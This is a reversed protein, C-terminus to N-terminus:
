LLPRQILVSCDYTKDLTISASKVWGKFTLGERTIGVQAVKGPLIAIGTYPCNISYEDADYLQPWLEQQGREYLDSLATLYKTIIPEAIRDGAGIFVEASVASSNQQAPIDDFVLATKGINGDSCFRFRYSQSEYTVDCIGIGENAKVDGNAAIVLEGLINGYWQVGILKEFPKSIKGTGDTFTLTDTKTASNIGEYFWTVAAGSTHRFNILEKGVFPNASVNIIKTDGETQEEVTLIPVIPAANEPAILIRNYNEHSVFKRPRDFINRDTSLDYDHSYDSLDNPSCITSYIVTLEGNPLSQIAAKKEAALETIIDIPYRKEAVFKSIHWDTIQWNLAIGVNDCLEQAIAKASIGLWTKTIQASYPEALLVTKSRGTVAFDNIGNDDANEIVLAFETLGLQLIIEIYDGKLQKIPKIKILNNLDAIKANFNILWNSIDM